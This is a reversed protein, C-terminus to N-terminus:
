FVCTQTYTCVCMHMHRYEKIKLVSNIRDKGRQKNTGVKELLSFNLKWYSWHIYKCMLYYLFQKGMVNCSTRSALTNVHVLVCIKLM